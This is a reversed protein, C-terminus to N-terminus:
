SQSRSPKFLRKWWPQSLHDIRQMIAQLLQQQSAQASQVANLSTKTDQLVVALKEIDEHQQQASARMADALAAFAEEQRRAATITQESSALLQKQGLQLEALPQQQAAVSAGLKDIASEYLGLRDGLLQVTNSIGNLSESQAMGQAQLATATTVLQTLTKTPAALASRTADAVSEQIEEGLRAAWGPAASLQNSLQDLVDRTAEDVTIRTPTIM